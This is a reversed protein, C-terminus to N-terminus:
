HFVPSSQSGWAMSLNPRLASVKAVGLCTLATAAVLWHNDQHCICITSFSQFEHRYDVLVKNLQVKEFPWRIWMGSPSLDGVNFPACGSCQRSTTFHGVDHGIRTCVDSIGSQYIHWKNIKQQARHSLSQSVNVVDMSTNPKMTQSENLNTSRKKHYTLLAIGGM